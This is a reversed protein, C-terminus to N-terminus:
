IYSFHDKWFVSINCEDSIGDISSAIVNSTENIKSVDKWFGDNDNECLENALADARATEEAQKIASKM